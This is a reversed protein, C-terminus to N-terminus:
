SPPFIQVMPISEHPEERHVVHERAVNRLVTTRRQRAAVHRHFAERERHFLRCPCRLGVKFIYILCGIMIFGLIFNTISLGLAVEVKVNDLQHSTSSETSIDSERPTNDTFLSASTDLDQRAARLMSKEKMTLNSLAELENLKLYLEPFETSSHAQQAKDLFVVIKARVQSELFLNRM